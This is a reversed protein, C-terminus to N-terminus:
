DSKLPFLLDFFGGEEIFFPPNEMDKLKTAMMSNPMFFIPTNM